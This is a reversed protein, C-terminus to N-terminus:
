SSRSDFESMREVIIPSLKHFIEYLLIKTFIENYYYRQLFISTNQSTNYRFRTKPVLTKASAISITEIILKLYMHIYTHIYTNNLYKNCFQIFNTVSMWYNLLWSPALLTSIVQCWCNRCKVNCSRYIYRLKSLILTTNSLTDMHQKMEMFNSSIADTSFLLVTPDM